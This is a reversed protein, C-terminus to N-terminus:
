DKKHIVDKLKKIHHMEINSECGCVICPGKLIGAHRRFRFILRDLLKDFNVEKMFKPGKPRSKPSPFLSKIRKSRLNRVM